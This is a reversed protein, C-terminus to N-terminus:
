EDKNDEKVLLIEYISFIRCKKVPDPQDPNHADYKKNQLYVLRFIQLIVDFDYLSELLFIPVIARDTRDPIFGM